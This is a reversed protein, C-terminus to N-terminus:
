ISISQCPPSAITPNYSNHQPPTITSNSPNPIFLIAALISRCHCYSDYCTPLHTLSFAIAITSNLKSNNLDLGRAFLGTSPSLHIFRGSLPREIMVRKNTDKSFPTNYKLQYRLRSRSDYLMSFGKQTHQM